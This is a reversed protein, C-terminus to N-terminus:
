AGMGGRSTGRVFARLARLEADAAVGVAVAQPSTARPLPHGNTCHSPALSRRALRRQDVTQFPVILTSNTLLAGGSGCAGVAVACSLPRQRETFLSGGRVGVGELFDPVASARM